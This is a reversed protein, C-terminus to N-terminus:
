GTTGLKAKREANVQRNRQAIESRSMKTPKSNKINCIRILAFLRNLHWNECEFPIHFTTMWFYILESTVVESRGKPKAIEAFTTASQKSDVYANVKSIHEQTFRAFVDTPLDPTMIMAEVYGLIEEATKDKPSLFPKEFKSEWKSLSILSHELELVVDGVTSFEETVENYFEEGQLTIRLM